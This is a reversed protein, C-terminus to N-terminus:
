PALKGKNTFSELHRLFVTGSAIAFAILAPRLYISQRGSDESPSYNCCVNFMMLSFPRCARAEALNTSVTSRKSAPAITRLSPSDESPSLMIPRNINAAEIPVEM